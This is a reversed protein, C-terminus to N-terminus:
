VENSIFKVVSDIFSVKPFESMINEILLDVCEIIAKYDIDYRYSNFDYEKLSESTLNFKLNMAAAMLHEVANAEAERKNWYKTDCSGNHHLYAHALEHCLVSLEIDEHFQKYVYIIRGEVRGYHDRGIDPNLIVNYGKPALTKLEKFTPKYLCKNKYLPETKEIFELLEGM